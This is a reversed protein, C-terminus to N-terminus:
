SKQPRKKFQGYQMKVPIQHAFFAVIFQPCNPLYIGIRDDKKIGLRHLSNAFRCVKDWLDAYLIKKDFFITSVSNPKNTAAEELFKYIPFDEPYDLHKPIEDPWLKFWPEEAPKVEVM